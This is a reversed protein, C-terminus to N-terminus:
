TVHVRNSLITQNLIKPRTVEEQVYLIPLPIRKVCSVCWHKSNYIYIEDTKVEGMFIGFINQPGGRTQPETQM